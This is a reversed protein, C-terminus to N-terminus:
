WSIRNPLPLSTRACLELIAKAKRECVGVGFYIKEGEILENGDREKESGCARWECRREMLM